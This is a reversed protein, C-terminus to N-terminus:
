RWNKLGKLGKAAPVSTNYKYSRNNPANCKAPTAFKEYCVWSFHEDFEQISITYVGEKSGMKDEQTPDFIDIKDTKEDFSLIAYAHNPTLSIKETYNGSKRVINGNGKLGAIIVMKYEIAEKINFRHNNCTTSFTYQLDWSHGTLIVIGEYKGSEISKYYDVKKKKENAHKAFAKELVAPWIGDQGGAYLGLEGDTPTDVMISAKGPFKIKYKNKNIKTIMNKIEEPRHKALCALAALFYCDGLRNQKICGLRIAKGHESRLWKGKDNKKKLIYLERRPNEEINGLYKNFKKRLEEFESNRENRELKFKGIDKKSIYMDGWFSDDASYNAIFRFKKILRTIVERSGKANEELEIKTLRGSNNTDLTEFKASFVRVEKKILRYEKNRYDIYKIDRKSVGDNEDGFEDNSYEELSSKLDLLTAVMAAEEGKYSPSHLARVMEKYSIFGDRGRDLKSFLRNFVHVFKGISDAPFNPFFHRKIKDKGNFVEKGRTDLIIKSAPNVKKTLSGDCRSVGPFGHHSDIIGRLLIIGSCIKKLDQIFDKLNKRSPSTHTAFEFNSKVNILILTCGWIENQYAETSFSLCSCKKEFDAEILERYSYYVSSNFGAFLFTGKDKSFVPQSLKPNPYHFYLCEDLLMSCKFNRGLKNMTLIFYSGKAEPFNYPNKKDINYHEGSVLIRREDGEYLTTGNGGEFERVKWRSTNWGKYANRYGNLGNMLDVRSPYFNLLLSPKAM